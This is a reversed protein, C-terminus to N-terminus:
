HRGRDSLLNVDKVMGLRGKLSFLERELAVDLCRIAKATIEQLDGVEHM